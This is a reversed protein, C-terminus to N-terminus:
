LAVSFWPMHNRLNGHRECLSKMCLNYASFLTTETNVTILAGVSSNSWMRVKQVNQVKEQRGRERRERLAAPGGNQQRDTVRRKGPM